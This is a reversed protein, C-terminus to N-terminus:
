PPTGQDKEQEEQWCCDACVMFTVTVAPAPQNGAPTIQLLLQRQQFTGPENPGNGCFDCATDQDTDNVNALLWATVCPYCGCPAGPVPFWALQPVYGAHPCFKLTGDRAERSFRGVILEQTRRGIQDPQVETLPGFTVDPMTRWMLNEAAELNAASQDRAFQRGLKDRDAQSDAM